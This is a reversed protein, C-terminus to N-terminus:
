SRDLFDLENNRIIGLLNHAVCTCIKESIGFGNSITIFHIIEHLFGEAVMSEAVVVKNEGCTEGIKITCAAVDVNAICDPLHEVKIVDIEHSNIRIKKPIKV